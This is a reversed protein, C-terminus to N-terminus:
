YRLWNSLFPLRYTPRFWAMVILWVALVIMAWFVISGLFGIVLGLVGGIVPIGGLISGLLGILWWLLSLPGFVAMSQKAHWQVNQNKRELVFLILGTVWGLPYALVREWRESLGLSTPADGTYSRRTMRERNMM